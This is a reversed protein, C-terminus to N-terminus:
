ERLFDKMENEMFELLYESTVLLVSEEEQQMLVLKYDFNNQKLSLAVMGNCISGVKFNCKVILLATFEDFPVTTNFKQRVVSTSKRVNKTIIRVGWIALIIPTFFLSTALPDSFILRYYYKIIESIKQEFPLNQSYLGYLFIYAFSLFLAFITSSKLQKLYYFFKVM